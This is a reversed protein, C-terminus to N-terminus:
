AARRVLFPDASATEGALGRWHIAELRKVSLARGLVGPHPRSVAEWGYRSFRDGFDAWRIVRGAADQRWVAKDCGPIRGCREWAAVRGQLILFPDQAIRTL